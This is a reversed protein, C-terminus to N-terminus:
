LQFRKMSEFEKNFQQNINQVIKNLKAPKKNTYESFEQITSTIVEMIQKTVEKIDKQTDGQETKQVGNELLKLTPSTSM